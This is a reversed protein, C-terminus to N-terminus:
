DSDRPCIDTDKKIRGVLASLTRIVKKEIEAYGTINPSIYIFIVNLTMKGEISEYLVHKNLRYAERIRRRIYNRKVARKHIKKPVSIIIRVPSRDYPSLSYVVKFPYQKLINGSRFLEDTIKLSCL